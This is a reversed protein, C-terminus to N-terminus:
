RQNVIKKKGKVQGPVSSITMLATTLRTVSQAITVQSAVKNSMSLHCFMRITLQELLLEM